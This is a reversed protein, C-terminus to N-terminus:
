TLYHLLPNIKHEAVDGYLKLYYAADFFKSPNALSHAWNELYHRVPDRAAALGFEKAYDDADFLPSGKLVDIKWKSVSKGFFM